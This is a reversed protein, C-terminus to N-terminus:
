VRRLEDKMYPSTKFTRESVGRKNLERSVSCLSRLSSVEQEVRFIACGKEYRTHICAHERIGWTHYLLNKSLLPVGSLPTSVGFAV